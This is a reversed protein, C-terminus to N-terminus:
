ILPVPKKVASPLGFVNQHSKREPWSAVEELLRRVRAVTSESVSTRHLEGGCWSRSPLTGRRSTSADAPAPAQPPMVRYGSMNTGPHGGPNRALEAGPACSAHECHAAPRAARSNPLVSHSSQGGPVLAAFGPLVSHAGHSFRRKAAFDPLQSHWSQRGPM